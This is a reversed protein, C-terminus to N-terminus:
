GRSLAPRAQGRRAPWSCCGRAARADPASVVNASASASLRAAVRDFADAAGQRVRRGVDLAAEIEEAPLGIERAKAVHHEVCAACNAGTATGLAILETLRAGFTM